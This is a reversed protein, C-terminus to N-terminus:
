VNLYDGEGSPEINGTIDVHHGLWKESLSPAIELYTVQGNNACVLNEFVIVLSKTHAPIVRGEGEEAKNGTSTQMITGRFMQRDYNVICDEAKASVVLCVCSVTSLALKKSMKLKKRNPSTSESAFRLLNLLLPNPLRQWTRQPDGPLTSSASCKRSTLNATIVIGQIEEDSLRDIDAAALAALPWQHLQLHEAEVQRM